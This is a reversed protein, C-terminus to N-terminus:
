KKEPSTRKTTTKAVTKDSTERPVTEGIVLKERRQELTPKGRSGVAILLHKIEGGVTLTHQSQFMGISKGALEIARLASGLDGGTHGVVKGSRNLIPRSVMSQDYVRILRDRVWEASITGAKVIQGLIWDIAARVGTGMLPARYQEPSPNGKYGASEYAYKSDLTEVYAISYDWIRQNIV